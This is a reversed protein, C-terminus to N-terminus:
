NGYAKEIARQVANMIVYSSNTAGSVADVTTSQHQIIRKIVPLEAKTGKLARHEVIQIHAITNERITVRVVARNPGGSYSGEYVGDMLKKHNVPGGIRSTVACGSFLLAVALLLIAIVIYKDPITKLGRVWELIGM